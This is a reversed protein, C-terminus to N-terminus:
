KDGPLRGDSSEKIERKTSVIAGTARESILWYQKNKYNEDKFAFPVLAQPNCVLRDSPKINICSPGVSMVVLELTGHVEKTDATEPKILRSREDEPLELIVYDWLPMIERKEEM